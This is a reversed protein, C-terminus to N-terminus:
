PGSSAPRSGQWKRVVDEDPWVAIRCGTLFQYDYKNRFTEHGPDLREVAERVLTEVRLDYRELHDVLGIWRRLARRYNRVLVVDGPGTRCCCAEEFEAVHSRVITDYRETEKSTGSGM